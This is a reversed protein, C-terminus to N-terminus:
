HSSGQPHTKPRWNSKCDDSVLGSGGVEGTVLGPSPYNAAGTDGTLIVITNKEIGAKKIAALIQGVNYDVEMKTDKSIHYVRINGPETRPSLNHISDNIYKLHEKYKFHCVEFRRILERVKQVNDPLEGLSKEFKNIAIIESDKPSIEINSWYSM